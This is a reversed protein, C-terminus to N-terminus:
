LNGIECQQDTQKFTGVYGQYFFSSQYKTIFNESCHDNANILISSHILCVVDTCLCIISVTIM